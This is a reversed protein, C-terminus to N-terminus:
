DKMSYMKSIKRKIYNGSSNVRKEVFKLFKDINMNKIIDGSISPKNLNMDFGISKLIRSSEIRGSLENALGNKLRNLIVNTDADPYFKRIINCMEEKFIDSKFHTMKDANKWSDSKTKMEDFSYKKIYPWAEQVMANVEHPESWYLYYGINDYWKGWIEKKIKSRNIDVANTLDTSSQKNSGSIRKWDGYAHNLEHYMSAEIETFLSEEDTSDCIICGIELKIHITNETRDDIPDTIYSGEFSNDAFNYCAGSVNFRKTSDPYRKYFEVDSLKMIAFEVDMSSIPLNVWEDTGILNSLDETSYEGDSIYVNDDSDYSEHLVIKFEDMLFDVFYVTPKALGMSENIFNDYKRIYKM